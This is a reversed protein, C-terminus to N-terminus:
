YIFREMELPTFSVYGQMALKVRFSGLREMKIANKIHKGAKLCHRVEDTQM